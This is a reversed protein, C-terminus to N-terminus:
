TGIQDHQFSKFKFSSHGTITSSTSYAILVRNVSAVDIATVFWRGSLRDYRVHPDSVNQGSTRVSAFFTNLSENLGGVNGTKDFVKIRGNAAAVVQTESVAGNNDPPWFLSEAFNTAQWSAGVAPALRDELRELNPRLWDGLPTAHRRISKQPRRFWRTLSQTTLM